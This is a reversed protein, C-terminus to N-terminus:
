SGPKLEGNVVGFRVQVAIQAALSVTLAADVVFMM